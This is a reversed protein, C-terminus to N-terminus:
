LPQVNLLPKFCYMIAILIEKQMWKDSAKRRFDEQWGFSKLLDDVFCYISIIKDENLM